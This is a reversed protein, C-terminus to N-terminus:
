FSPRSLVLSANTGGFGFSNSLITEVQEPRAKNAIHDLACGPDPDDLNITPPLRGTELARVCLIAEVAGAAGLLHGMMSKTSSVPTGEGLLDRLARAEVPDGAPTGTAHANVYGLEAPAIKADALALRMCRTVGEGSEEPAAMHSADASAGYGCLQALIPAGRARAHELSELVMVGAGESVVFGDRDRDFPRSATAPEDNRTSLARMAAFGAVALDTIPAETGGALMVDADGRMILRASEGISHASSACASVHCLNPGRLGYTISVYSSPMNALAMPITFPSARRPGRELIVKHNELITGLGGIGSGIAVGIRDRNHDGISLGAAELAQHAASLGLLIGRDLRRREKAPLDPVVIEGRVEGAIRAPYDTADFRTIPGIGSRGEVAADWTADLSNGLPTVCGMGSIVVVSRAM